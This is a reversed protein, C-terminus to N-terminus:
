LSRHGSRSRYRDAEALRCSQVLGSKAIGVRIATQSRRVWPGWLRRLSSGLFGAWRRRPNRNFGRLAPENHAPGRDLPLGFCATDPRGYPSTTPPLGALRTSLSEEHHMVEAVIADEQRFTTQ